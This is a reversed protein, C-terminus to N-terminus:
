TCRIQPFNPLLQENFYEEFMEEHAHVTTMKCLFVLKGNPVLGDEDEAHVLTLTHGVALLLSLGCSYKSVFAETSTKNIM